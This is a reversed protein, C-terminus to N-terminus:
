KSKGKKKPQEPEIISTDVPKDIVMEFDEHEKANTTLIPSMDNISLYWHDGDGHPLLMALGKTGEKHLKFAKLFICKYRQYYTFKKV